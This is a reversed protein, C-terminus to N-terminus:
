HAAPTDFPVDLADAAERLRVKLARLGGQVRRLVSSSSPSLPISRASESPSSSDSSSSADSMSPNKTDSSTGSSHGASVIMVGTLVLGTAYALVAKQVAEFAITEMANVNVHPSPMIFAVCGLIAWLFIRNCCPHRQAGIFASIAFTLSCIANADMTMYQRKSQLQDDYTHQRMALIDFSLILIPWALGLLAYPTIDNANVIAMWAAPWMTIAILWIMTVTLRTKIRTSQDEQISFNYILMYVVIGAVLAAVARSLM